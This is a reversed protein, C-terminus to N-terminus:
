EKLSLCLKPSPLCRRQEPTSKPPSSRSFCRRLFPALYKLFGRTEEEAVVSQRRPTSQPPAMHFLGNVARVVHVAAIFRGRSLSQQRSPAFDLQMDDAEQRRKRTRAVLRRVRVKLDVLTGISPQSHHQADSATTPQSVHACRARRPTARTEEEADSERVVRRRVRPKSDLSSPSHSSDTAERGARFQAVMKRLRMKVAVLVELTVGDNEPASFWHHALADQVSLRERPNLALLGRLLDLLLPPAAARQRASMVSALPDRGSDHLKRMRGLVAARNAQSFPVTRMLLVLLVVGVSWMDAPRGYRMVGVEPAQTYVTGVARSFGARPVKAALGLDCLVLDGSEKYLLANELKVDRHAVGVAHLAAVAQLLQRVLRRLQSNPLQARNEALELLSGGSILRMVVVLHARSYFVRLARVVRECNPAEAAMRAEAACDEPQSRPVLKIAVECVGGLLMQERSDEVLAAYVRGSGGRGLARLVRYGTPSLAALSLAEAFLRWGSRAQTPAPVLTLLQARRGRSLLVSTGRRSHTVEAGRVQLARGCLKLKGERLHLVVTGRQWGGLVGFQVRARVSHHEM